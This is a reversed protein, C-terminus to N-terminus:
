RKPKPITALLALARALDPDEKIKQRFRSVLASVVQPNEYGYFEAVVRPPIGYVQLATWAVIKRISYTTALERMPILREICREEIHRLYEVQFTRSDEDERQAAPHRKPAERLYARYSDRPSRDGRTVAALVPEVDLWSPSPALGLYNRCSSWRYNEPPIGLQLPNCHIYRSVYALGRPDEGILTTKFVGQFLRESTGHRKNFGRAYRSEFDRIMRWLRDGSSRPELHYHNPMLAWSHHRIGYRTSFWGLLHVFLERDEDDVCIAVKRSGRNMAHLNTVPLGVRRKVEM